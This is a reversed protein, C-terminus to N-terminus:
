NQTINALFTKETEDFEKNITQLFEEVPQLQQNTIHYQDKSSSMNQWLREVTHLTTGIAKIEQENFMDDLNQTQLWQRKGEFYDQDENMMREYVDEKDQCKSTEM